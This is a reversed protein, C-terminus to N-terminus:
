AYWRQVRLALELRTISHMHIDEVLKCCIEWGDRFGGM